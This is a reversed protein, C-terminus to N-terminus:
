QPHLVSEFGVETCYLGRPFRVHLLYTHVGEKRYVGIEVFEFSSLPMIRPIGTNFVM